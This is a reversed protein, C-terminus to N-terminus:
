EGCENQSCHTLSPPKTMPPKVALDSLSIDGQPTIQDEGPIKVGQVVLAPAGLIAAATSLM